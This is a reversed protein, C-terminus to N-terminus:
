DFRGLFGSGTSASYLSRRGQGGGRMGKRQERSSLAESIDNRKSEARRQIEKQKQEEAAARQEAAARKEANSPGGCM